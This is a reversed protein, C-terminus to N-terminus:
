KIKLELKDMEEILDNLEIINIDLGEIMYQEPYAWFASKDRLMQGLYYGDKIKSVETAAENWALALDLNPETGKTKNLYVRTKLYAANIAKLANNTKEKEEKSDKKIFEYVSKVAGFLSNLVNISIIAM